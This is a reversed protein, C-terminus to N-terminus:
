IQEYGPKLNTWTLMRQSLLQGKGQKLISAFMNDLILNAKKVAIDYSRAIFYEKIDYNNKDIYDGDFAVGDSEKGVSKEYKYLEDDLSYDKDADLEDESCDEKSDLEDKSYDEKSNLEDKSYFENSNLEDKSYDKDGNVDLDSESSDCM